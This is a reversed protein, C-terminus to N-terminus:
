TIWLLLGAAPIVVRVNGRSFVWLIRRRADYAVRRTDHHPDWDGIFNHEHEQQNCGLVSPARFSTTFLFLTIPTPLILFSSLACPWAIENFRWPKPRTLGAQYAITGLYSWNRSDNSSLIMKRKDEGTHGRALHPLPEDEESTPRHHNLNWLVVSSYICATLTTRSNFSPSPLQGQSSCPPVWTDSSGTWLPYQLLGRGYETANTYLAWWLADVGSM